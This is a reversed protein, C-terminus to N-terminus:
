GIIGSGYKSRECLPNFQYSCPEDNWGYNNSSMFEVCDEGGHESNPEGPLWDTFYAHAGSGLWRWDGEVMEDTLGM